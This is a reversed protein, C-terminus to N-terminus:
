FNFDTIFMGAGAGGGSAQIDLLRGSRTFILKGDIRISFTFDASPQGCASFLDARAIYTGALPQDDWIVDEERYGDIACNANSDRDLQGAHPVGGDVLGGDVALTNPHKPDLEKGTPAIIHLDLDVDTDWVAVRRRPRGTGAVPGRDDHGASTGLQREPRLRLGAAQAEGRAATRSYDVTASWSLDSDTYPDYPGIPVVWYGSGVDDMRLAVSWASKEADGTLKKGAQGQPILNNASLLQTVQPGSEGTPLAAKSSSVTRYRPATRGHREQGRGLQRLGRRAARRRRGPIALTRTMAGGTPAADLHQEESGDPVGVADLALHDRIFDYEFLLKARHPLVLGVLPSWTKIDAKFPLIKGGQSTLIDSNPDYYDYRLGVVGYPTVQQVVGVYYGLERTDLHALVPDAIYLARDMNSAAVVEGYLQTMGLKTEVRLQADAGIAWHFFNQSIQGTQGEIAQLETSDSHGTRTSITALGPHGQHQRNGLPVRLREAGVRRRVRPDRRVGARERRYPGHHGQIREPDQLPFGTREGLPEGNIIAVHYTLFAIQGSLRAGVDPESPWFSLSARSREMFPRERPSELMLEYGFPTDFQGFTLQAVPLMDARNGGRYFVSAEAHQVGFHGGHVTNGDLEIMVSSYKWAREVKLRARRLVFRDQNLLQGGQLLQDESDQHSEYQAQVYGGVKIGDAWGPERRPPLRKPKRKRRKPEAASQQKKALEAQLKKVEKELSTVRADQENLDARQGEVQDALKDVKADPAPAPVAAPADPPAPAPAAPAPQASAVSAFGLLAVVPFPLLIRRTVRIGPIPRSCECSLGACRVSRCAPGQKM